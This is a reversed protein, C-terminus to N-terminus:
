LRGSKIGENEDLRPCVVPFCARQDHVKLKAVTLMLLSRRAITQSFTNSAYNILDLDIESFFDKIDPRAAIRPFSAHVDRV